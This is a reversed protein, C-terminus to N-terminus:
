QDGLVHRSPSKLQDQEALHEQQVDVDDARDACTLVDDKDQREQESSQEGLGCQHDRQVEDTLVHGNRADSTTNRAGNRGL